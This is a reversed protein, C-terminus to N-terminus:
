LLRLSFDKNSGRRTGQLFRYIKWLLEVERAQKEEPQYEILFRDKEIRSAKRKGM